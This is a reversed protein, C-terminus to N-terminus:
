IIPVHAIVMFNSFTQAAVIFPRPGEDVLTSNNQSETQAAVQIWFNFRVFRLNPNSNLLWKRIPALAKCAVGCSNWNVNRWAFSTVVNVLAIKFNQRLRWCAFIKFGYSWDCRAAEGADNKQFFDSEAYERRQPEFRHFITDM